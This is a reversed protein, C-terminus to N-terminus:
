RRSEEAALLEESRDWLQRALEADHVQANVRKAPRRKEYYTGPEWTAGPATEALWVLQDAGKEPSALMVKRTVPNTTIFRMLRSETQSGFSSAINGPHFAVAAVGKAGYRRNLEATFLINELKAAGYARVADYKRDLDLDSLDLRTALRAAVSSTQIVTAKSSVLTDILLTTLLFPALHNIQFTKEFGDVTKARDGFVGGANNALVDITPYTAQLKGALERVEDLRTFDAVFFESGIAEAIARTKEPSRGVVVVRHGDARLQRSAAAGIGDSSGTIVITKEM